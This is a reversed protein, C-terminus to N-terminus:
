QTGPGPPLVECGGDQKIRVVVKPSVKGEEGPLHLFPSSFLLLSKGLPLAPTQVWATQGAWTESGEKGQSQLPSGSQAHFPPWSPASRNKATGMKLCLSLHRSYLGGDQRNFRPYKAKLGRSGGHQLCESCVIHMAMTKVSDDLEFTVENPRM